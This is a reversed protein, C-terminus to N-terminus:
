KLILIDDRQEMIFLPFLYIEAAGIMLMIINKILERVWFYKISRL